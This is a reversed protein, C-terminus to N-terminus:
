ATPLSKTTSHLASQPADANTQEAAPFIMTFTAGKGSSSDVSITGGHREIIGYVVALGLGVGQGGEKTTYFPEFIRPLLESDIGIGTDSVSLVARRGSADAEYTVTLTGGDAMADAANVFLAVLAQQIQQADCLLEVNGHPKLEVFRIDRMELHHRVILYAHGVILELSEYAFVGSEKKSFLLLNKVIDGCRHTERIIIDLESLVDEPSASAFNTRSLQRSLLKSYTLIGSLPNNLEHAVTASLRGLSTMKEVHVIRRHIATLEESKEQVRQELTASWRRNEEQATRISDTMENFSKALAGLEDRAAVLVRHELNGTSIQQTGEMLATIPELVIRSLSWWALFLVCAALIAAVRFMGTRVEAMSADVRSLTMRVDLVGVVPQGKPPAHCEPGACSAENRISSMTALIRGAPGTEIRIRDDSLSLVPATGPAHCRICAESNLDLTRGRESSDTSFTILGRKNYVRIGAILEGRGITEMTRYVDEKRNLLMSYHTSSKLFESISLANAEMQAMLQREHYWVAYSSYTGFLIVLLLLSGALLRFKLSSFLRV